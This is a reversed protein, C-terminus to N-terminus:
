MEMGKRLIAFLTGAWLFWVLLQRVWVFFEGLPGALPDIPISISPTLPLSTFAYTGAVSPVSVSIASALSFPFKVSALSKLNDIRSALTSSTANMNTVAVVLNDLKGTNQNMAVSLNDIAGPLPALTTNLNAAVSVVNDIKNNISSAVNLANDISTKIGVLNLAYDRIAILVALIQSLWNGTQSDGQTVTNDNVNNQQNGTAPDIATLGMANKIADVNSADVFNASVIEPFPNQALVGGSNPTGFVSGADFSPDIAASSYDTPIDPPTNNSYGPSLGASAASFSGYYQYVTVFHGCNNGDWDQSTGSGIIKQWGYGTQYKIHVHSNGQVLFNDGTNSPSYPSQEANWWSILKNFAGVDYLTYLLGVVGAVRWGVLAAKGGNALLQAPSFANYALRVAGKSVGSVTAYSKPVLVFSHFFMVILCVLAKIWIHKKM